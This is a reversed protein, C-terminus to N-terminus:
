VLSLIDENNPYYKAKQFHGSLHIQFDVINIVFLHFFYIIGIDYHSLKYMCPTGFVGCYVTFM